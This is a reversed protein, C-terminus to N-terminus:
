QWYRHHFEASMEAAAVDSADLPELDQKVAWTGRDTVLRRIVGVEGRAFPGSLTIARGLGFVFSVEQADM